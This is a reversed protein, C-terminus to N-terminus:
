HSGALCFSMELAAMPHTRCAQPISFPRATDDAPASTHEHAAVATGATADLATGAGADVVGATSGSAEAVGSLLAGGAVDLAGAGDLPEM